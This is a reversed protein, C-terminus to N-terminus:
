RSRTFVFVRMYATVAEWLRRGAAKHVQASPAAGGPTPHDSRAAATGVGVSPPALTCCLPFRLIPWKGGPKFVIKPWNFILIFESLSQKHNYLKLAALRSKQSSM